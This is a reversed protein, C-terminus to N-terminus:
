LYSVQLGGVDSTLHEFEHRPPITAGFHQIDTIDYYPCYALQATKDFAGYQSASQTRIGDSPVVLYGMLGVVNRWVTAHFPCIKSAVGLLM